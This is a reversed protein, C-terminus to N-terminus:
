GRTNKALWIFPERDMGRRAVVLEDGVRAESLAGDEEQPGPSAGGRTAAATSAAAWAWSGSSSFRKGARRTTSSLRSTPPSPRRAPRTGPGHTGFSFLTGRRKRAAATTSLSLSPPQQLSVAERGFAFGRKREKAFWEGDGTDAARSRGDRSSFISPSFPLLLSFFSSFFFSFFFLALRVLLTRRSLSRFSLPLFVDIKSSPSFSFTSSGRVCVCPAANASLFGNGRGRRRFFCVSHNYDSM